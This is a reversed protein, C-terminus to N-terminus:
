YSRIDIGGFITVGKLLLVKESSIGVPQLPRKDEM